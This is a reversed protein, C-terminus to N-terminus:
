RLYERLEQNEKGIQTQLRKEVTKYEEEARKHGEDVLKRMMDDRLAEVEDEM